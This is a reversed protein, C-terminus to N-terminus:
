VLISLVITSFKEVTLSCNLISISWKMKFRYSNFIDNSVMGNLCVLRQLYLKFQLATSGDYSNWFMMGLAVDDGKSVETTNDKAVLSYMFQRGNWFVKDNTWEYQSSTAIDNALKEM